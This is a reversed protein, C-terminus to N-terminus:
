RGVDISRLLIIDSQFMKWSCGAHKVRNNGVNKVDIMVILDSNFVCNVYSM